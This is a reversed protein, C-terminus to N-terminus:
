PSYITYIEVYLHGEIGIRHSYEQSVERTEYLWSGIKILCFQKDAPYQEYNM